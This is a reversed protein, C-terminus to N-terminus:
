SGQSPRYRMQTGLIGVVVCALGAVLLAADRGKYPWEEAWARVDDGTGAPLRIGDFVYYVTGGDIRVRAFREARLERLRESRLPRGAFLTVCDRRHPDNDPV